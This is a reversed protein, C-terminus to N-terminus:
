YLDFLKTLQFGGWTQWYRQQEEYIKSQTTVGLELAYGSYELIVGFRNGYVFPIKDVTVESKHFTNGDMTMDRAILRAYPKNYFRWSWRGDSKSFLNYGQGLHHAMYFELSTNWTGLNLNYGSTQEIKNDYYKVLLDRSEFGSQHMFVNENDTQHSWGEPKQQGLLGHFWRQTQGAGSAEGTTGVMLNSWKREDLTIEEKGAKAYLLGTYPFEGPIPDKARITDPTYMQQGAEFTYKNPKLGNDVSLSPIYSTTNKLFEPAKEENEFYKFSLGQSYMMDKNKTIGFIDNEEHLSIVSCASLLLPLAFLLLKM